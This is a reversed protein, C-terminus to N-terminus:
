APPLVSTALLALMVVALILILVYRRARDSMTRSRHARERTPFRPADDPRLRGINERVTFLGERRSARQAQEGHTFVGGGSAM